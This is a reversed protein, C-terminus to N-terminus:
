ILCDDVPDSAPYAPEPERGTHFSPMDAYFVLPSAQLSPSTSDDFACCLLLLRCSGTSSCTSFRCPCAARATSCFRRCYYGPGRLPSISHFPPFFPCTVFLLKFSHVPRLASTAAGCSVVGSRRSLVRIEDQEHVKLGASAVSPRDTIREAHSLIPLRYEVAM